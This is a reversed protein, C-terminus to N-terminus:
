LFIMSIIFFIYSFCFYPTVRIVQQDPIIMMILTQPKCRREVCLELCCKVGRDLSGQHWMQKTFTSIAKLLSSEASGPWVEAKTEADCGGTWHSQACGPFSLICLTLWFLFIIFCMHGLCLRVWYMWLVPCVELISKQVLIQSYLRSGEDPIVIRLEEKNLSFLQAGNLVGLSQIASFSSFPAWLLDVVSFSQCLSCQLCFHILVTICNICVCQLM